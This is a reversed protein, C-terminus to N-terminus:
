KEKRLKNLYKIAFEIIVSAEESSLIDSNNRQWLNTRINYKLLTWGDRYIIINVVDRESSFALYFQRNLYEAKLIDQYGYWFKSEIMLRTLTDYKDIHEASIALFLHKCMRRIDRKPYKPISERYAKCTCNFYYINVAHNNVRIKTKPLQKNLEVRFSNDLIILKSSKNGSTSIKNKKVTLDVIIEGNIKKIHM